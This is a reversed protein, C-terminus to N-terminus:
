RNMNLGTLSTDRPIFPLLLKHDIVYFGQSEHPFGSVGKEETNMM